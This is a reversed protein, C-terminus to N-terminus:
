ERGGVYYMGGRSSLCVREAAVELPTDVSIHFILISRPVKKSRDVLFTGLVSTTSIKIPFNPIKRYPIDSRPISM